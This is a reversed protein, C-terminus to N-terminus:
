LCRQCYADDCDSLMLSAIYKNMNYEAKLSLMIAVGIVIGVAAACMSFWNLVLLASVFVGLNSGIVICAMPAFLKMTKTIYKMEYM